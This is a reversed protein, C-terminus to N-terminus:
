PNVVGAASLDAILLSFDCDTYGFGTPVVAISFPGDVGEGDLNQLFVKFRTADVANWYALTGSSGPTVLITADGYTNSQMNLPTELQFEYEGKGPHNAGVFGSTIGTAGDGYLNGSALLQLSAYVYVTSPNDGNIVAQIAPPVAASANVSAFLLATKPDVPQELKLEYAGATSGSSRKVTSIGITSVLKPDTDEVSVHCAAHILSPIIVAM